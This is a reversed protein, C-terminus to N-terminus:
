WGVEVEDLRLARGAVVFLAHKVRYAITRNVRGHLDRYHRGLETEPHVGLGVENSILLTPADRDAAATALEAMTAVIASESHPKDALRLNTTLMTLCDVIVLHEADISRLAEADFLPAEVLAWQGPRENQHREIRDSMDDDLAEATAVFSVDGPWTAGLRVALDSKGSRAGGILLTAGRGLRM